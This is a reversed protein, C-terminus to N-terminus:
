LCPPLRYLLVEVPSITDTSGYPFAVSHTITAIGTAHGCDIFKINYRFGLANHWL